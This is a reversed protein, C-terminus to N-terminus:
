QHHQRKLESSARSSDEQLIIILRDEEKEMEVQRGGDYCVIVRMTKTNVTTVHKNGSHHRHCIFFASPRRAQSERSM